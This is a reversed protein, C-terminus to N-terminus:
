PYRAQVVTMKAGSRTYALKQMNDYNACMILRFCASALGASDCTRISNLYGDATVAYQNKVADSMSGLFQALPGVTRDAENNAAKRASEDYKAKVDRYRAMVVDRQAPDLGSIVEYFELKRKAPKADLQELCEKVFMYRKRGGFPEYFPHRLQIMPPLADDALAVCIFQADYGVSYALIPATPLTKRAVIFWGFFPHVNMKDGAFHLSCHTEIRPYTLLSDHHRVIVGKAWVAYSKAMACSLKMGNLGHMYGAADTDFKANTLGPILPITASIKRGSMAEYRQVLIRWVINNYEYHTKKFSTKYAKKFASVAYAYMNETKAREMYDDYMYKSFTADNEIGTQHCLAQQVTIDIEPLIGEHLRSKETVLFVLGVAGKTISMTNFTSPATCGDRILACPRKLVSQKAAM